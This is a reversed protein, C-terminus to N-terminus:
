GSNASIVQPLVVLVSVAVSLTGPLGDITVTEVLLPEVVILVAAMESALLVVGIVIVLLACPRCVPVTTVM